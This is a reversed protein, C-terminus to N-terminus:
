GSRPMHLTPPRCLATASRTRAFQRITIKSVCVSSACRLYTPTRDVGAGHDPSFCQVKGGVTVYRHAGIRVKETWGWGDGARKCNGMLVLSFNIFKAYTSISVSSDDGGNCDCRSICFTRNSVELQLLLRPIEDRLACISIRFVFNTNRM